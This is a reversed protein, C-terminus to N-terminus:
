LSEKETVNLKIISERKIGLRELQVVGNTIAGTITNSDITISSHVSVPPSNFSVAIPIKTELAIHLPEIWYEFIYKKM